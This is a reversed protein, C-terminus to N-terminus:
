DQLIVIKVIDDIKIKNQIIKVVRYEHNLMNFYFVIDDIKIKNQIIKVVHYEHNLINFYFLYSHFSLVDTVYM